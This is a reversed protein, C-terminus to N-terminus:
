SVSTARDDSQTERYGTGITISLPTLVVQYNILLIQM